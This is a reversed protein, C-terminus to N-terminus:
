GACRTVTVTHTLLCSSTFKHLRSRCCRCMADCMILDNGVQTLLKARRRVASCFVVARAVVHHTHKHTPTHLKGFLVVRRAQVLTSHACCLMDREYLCLLLTDDDDDDRQARQATQRLRRYCNAVSWLLHM